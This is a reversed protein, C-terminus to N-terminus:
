KAQDLKRKKLRDGWQRGKAGFNSIIYDRYEGTKINQMKVLDLYQANRMGFVGKLQSLRKHQSCLNKHKQMLEFRYTGRVKEISKSIQEIESGIKECELKTKVFASRINEQERKISDALTFSAYHLGICHYFDRKQKQTKWYNDIYTQSQSIRSRISDIADTQQRDLATRNRDITNQLSDLRNYLISYNLRDNDPLYNLISSKYNEDGFNVSSSNKRTKKALSSKSQKILTIIIVIIIILTIIFIGYRSMIEVFDM